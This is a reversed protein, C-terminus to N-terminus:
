FKVNNDRGMPRLFNMGSPVSVSHINGNFHGPPYERGKKVPDTDANPTQSRVFFIM